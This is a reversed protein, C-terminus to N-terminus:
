EQYRSVASIWQKCTELLVDGDVAMEARYPAQLLQRGAESCLITRGCLKDLYELWIEGTLGAVESRPMISIAIRRLLISLQQSLKTSDRHTRYDKTIRDFEKMAARYPAMRERRKRLSVLVLLLVGLILVLLLWWGIAPPWWGILEPLHIDKLEALPDM